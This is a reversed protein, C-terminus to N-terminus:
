YYRDQRRSGVFKEYFNYKAALQDAGFGILGGVAAGGLTVLTFVLARFGNVDYGEKINKKYMTTAIDMIETRLKAADGEEKDLSIAIYERVKKDLIPAVSKAYQVGSVLEDISKKLDTGHRLANEAVQFEKPGDDSHSTTKYQHNKSTTKAERWLNADNKLANWNNYIIGLNSNYTSGRNWKRSINLFDIRDLKKKDQSPAITKEAAYEGEANTMKAVALTEKLSIDPFDAVLKDVTQSALEGEQRHYYYSHTTDDYVEVYYIETTTCDKGCSVTRTRPESHTNNIHSDDWSNQFHANVSNLENSVSSLANLDVLAKDAISPIEKLLMPLDRKHTKFTPDVHMELERAFSDHHGNAGRGNFSENSAEFIKMTADNLSAYFRTFNGLQQNKQSHEKEMQSLESFALPLKHARKQEYGYSINGAVCAVLTAGIAVEIPTDRLLRLSAEKFQNLYLGAKEKVIHTDM